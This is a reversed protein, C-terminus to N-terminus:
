RARWLVSGTDGKRSRLSTINQRLDVRVSRTERESGRSASSIEELPPPILDIDVTIDDHMSDYSGLGASGLMSFQSSYLTFVQYAM